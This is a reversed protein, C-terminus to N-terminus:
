SINKLIRDYIEMIKACNKEASFKEKAQLYGAEGMAGALQGDSLIRVIAAALLKPKNPKILIGTVGNQILEKIGELNSAVVPKAVAGAEIVPRAFHPEVAPFVVIDAAAILSLSDSNFETIVCCDTLGNNKIKRIVRQGLTGYHFWPLIKRALNLQWYDPPNYFCGPMLCVFDFAQKKLARLARLM